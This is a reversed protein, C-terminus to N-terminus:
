AELGRQQGQLNLWEDVANRAFRWKGDIMLAPVKGETAMQELLTPGIRLYQAAERLTMVTHQNAVVARFLGSLQEPSLFLELRVVGGHSVAPSPPDPLRTEEHAPEMISETQTAQPQYAPNEIVEIKPPRQENPVPNGNTQAAQRIADALNM